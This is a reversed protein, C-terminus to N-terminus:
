TLMARSVDSSSGEHAVGVVDNDDAVARRALVAGARECFAAQADRDDLALEDAALAGVPRADRRLRQQTRSFGHV